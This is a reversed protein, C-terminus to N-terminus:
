ANNSPFGLSQKSQKWRPSLVQNSCYNQCFNAVHWFKRSIKREVAICVSGFNLFNAGWNGGRWTIPFSKLQFRGNNQNQWGTKKKKILDQNLSPPIMNYFLRFVMWRSNDQSTFMVLFLFIITHINVDFSFYSVIKHSLQPRGYFACLFFSQQFKPCNISSYIKFM